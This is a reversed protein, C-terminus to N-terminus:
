LSFINCYFFAAFSHWESGIEFDFLARCVEADLWRAISEALKQGEEEHNDISALSFSEVNSSSFLATRSSPRHTAGFPAPSASSIWAHCLHQDILAFLAVLMLSLYGTMATKSTSSTM